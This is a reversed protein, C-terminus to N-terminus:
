STPKDPLGMGIKVQHAGSILAVGVKIATDPDLQVEFGQGNEPNRGQLHVVHEGARIFLQMGASPNNPAPKQPENLPIKPIDM